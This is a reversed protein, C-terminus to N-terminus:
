IQIRFKSACDAQTYITVNHMGVGHRGRLGCGGALAIHSSRALTCFGLLNKIVTPIMPREKYIQTRDVSNYAQCTEVKIHVRALPCTCSGHALFSFLMHAALAPLPANVPPMSFSAVVLSAKPWSIPSESCCTVQSAPSLKERRREAIRATLPVRDDLQM